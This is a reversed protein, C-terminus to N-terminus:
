SGGNVVRAGGTAGAVVHEGVEAAEDSEEEEENVAGKPRRPAMTAPTVWVPTLWPATAIPWRGIAGGGMHTSREGDPERGHDGDHQALSAVLPRLGAGAEEHGEGSCPWGSEAVLAGLSREAGKVCGFANGHWVPLAHSPALASLPSPPPAPIHSMPLPRGIFDTGSAGAELTHEAGLAGSEGENAEGRKGM